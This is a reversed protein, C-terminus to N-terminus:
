QNSTHGMVYDDKATASGSCNKLAYKYKYAYSDHLPYAEGVILSQEEVRDHQIDGIQVQDNHHVRLRDGVSYRDRM